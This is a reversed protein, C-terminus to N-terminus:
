TATLDWAGNKYFSFCDPEGRIVFLASKLCHSNSFDNEQLDPPSEDFPSSHFAALFTVIMM